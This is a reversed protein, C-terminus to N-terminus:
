KGRRLQLEYAAAVEGSYIPNPKIVVLSLDNIDLTDGAAPVNTGFRTRWQAGGIYCSFDHVLVQDNINEATYGSPPTATM